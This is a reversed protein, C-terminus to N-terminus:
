QETERSCFSKHSPNGHSLLLTSSPWPPNGFYGFNVRYTHSTTLCFTSMSLFSRRPEDKWFRTLIDFLYERLGHAQREWRELRDGWVRAEWWNCLQFHLFLYFTRGWGEILAAPSSGRSAQSDCDLCKNGYLITGPLQFWRLLCCLTEGGKPEPSRAGPQMRTSAKRLRLGGGGPRGWGVWGTWSGPGCFWPAAGDLSCEMRVPRRERTQAQATDAWLPICWFMPVPPSFPGWPVGPPM